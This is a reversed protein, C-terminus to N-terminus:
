ADAMKLFLADTAIKRNINVAFQERLTEIEALWIQARRSDTNEAFRVLKPELDANILDPAGLKLTWVDHILHELVELRQEYEDKIKAENMEEAIKLLRARDKSVTIADLVNLMMERQTKYVDLNLSLANGLSGRSLRSILKAEVPSVKKTAQLYKEIEEGAIPAFRIMQCRSLITQLLSDARSTLLFLHTTAPPEELTKLLANAAEGQGASLKEANEILFFRAKGEYPTLNAQETLDRIADVLISNKYPVIRGVDSHESWFVKKYEDKHDSDHPPLAAFKVARSCAACKDCAEGSQPNRCLVTKALELAFLQKGVGADGAFIFANPIRRNSIMRRFVEKIQNNGILKDFM